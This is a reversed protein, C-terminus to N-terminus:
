REEKAKQLIDDTGQCLRIPQRRIESLLDHEYWRLALQKRRLEHHLAIIFLGEGESLCATIAEENMVRRDLMVLPCGAVVELSRRLDLTTCVGCSPSGGVGVIGAVEFGSRVYDEIDSVVEKALRRYRWRTYRLFLPLLLHRVRYFLTGRSGYIPLLYRKLVGGWARQEPCHMQCIGLGERQFCNVLESVGGPRFAGGLYRTNENLLCHSVFIVQKGREDELRELLLQRAQRHSSLRARHQVQGICEDAREISRQASATGRTAHQMAIVGTTKWKHVKKVAQVSSQATLHGCKSGWNFFVLGAERDPRSKGSCARLESVISKRVHHTEDALTTEACCSRQKNV